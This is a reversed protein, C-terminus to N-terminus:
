KWFSTNELRLFEEFNIDISSLCPMTVDEDCLLDRTLDEIELFNNCASEPKQIGKSMDSKMIDIENKISSEFNMIEDVIQANHNWIPDFISHLEMSSSISLTKDRVDDLESGFEEGNQDLSRKFGQGFLLDSGIQIWNLTPTDRPTLLQPQCPDTYNIL